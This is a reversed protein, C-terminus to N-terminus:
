NGSNIRGRTYQKPCEPRLPDNMDWSIRCEKCHMAESYPRALCPIASPPAPSRKPPAPNVKYIGDFVCAPMNGRETTIADLRAIFKLMRQAEPKYQDPWCNAGRKLVDVLTRIPIDLRSMAIVIRPTPPVFSEIVLAVIVGALFAVACFAATMM